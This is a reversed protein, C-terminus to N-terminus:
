DDGQDWEITESLIGLDLLAKKDAEWRPKFGTGTPVKSDVVKNNFTIRMTYTGDNLAEGLDETHFTVSQGESNLAKHTRQRMEIM